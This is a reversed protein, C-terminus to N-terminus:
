IRTKVMMLALVDSLEETDAADLAAMATEAMQIIEAVVGRELRLAPDYDALHRANRLTQFVAAFNRIEPGVATRGLSDRFAKTMIPKDIAECIENVRGHDFGRYLLRYSASRVQGQGAFRDAALRLVKHFVAYYATSVSRRM